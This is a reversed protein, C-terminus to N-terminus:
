TLDRIRSEVVEIRRSVDVGTDDVSGPPQLVLEDRYGRLVRLAEDTQGAACLIEARVVMMTFYDGEQITPVLELFRDVAALAEDPPWGWLAPGCMVMTNFRVLRRFQCFLDEHVGSSEWKALLSDCRQLYEDPSLVRGLAIIRRFDQEFRQSVNM